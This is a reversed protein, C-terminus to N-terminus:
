VTRSVSPYSEVFDLSFWDGDCNRVPLKKTENRFKNAKCRNSNTSGTTGMPACGARARTLTGIREHRYIVHTPLQVGVAFGPCVESAFGRIALFFDANNDCKQGQHYKIITVGITKPVTEQHMSNEKGKIM